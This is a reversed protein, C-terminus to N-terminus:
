KQCSRKLYENWSIEGAEYAARAPDKEKALRKKEELRKTAELFSKRKLEKNTMDKVERTKTRVYEFLQLLCAESQRIYV